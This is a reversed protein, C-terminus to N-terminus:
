FPNRRERDRKGEKRGGKSMGRGRRKERKRAM